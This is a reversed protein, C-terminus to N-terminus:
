GQTCCTAACCVSQDGVCEDDPLVLQRYIPVAPTNAIGWYSSDVYLNPSTGGLPAIVSSVFEYPSTQVGFSKCEADQSPANFFANKSVSSTRTGGQPQWGTLSGDMDNLITSFDIPTIGSYTAGLPAFTMPQGSPSALSGQLYNAYQDIVNHR